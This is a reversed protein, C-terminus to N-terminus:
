ILRDDLCIVFYFFVYYRDIWYNMKVKNKNYMYVKILLFFNKMVFRIRVMNIEVIWNKELCNCFLIVKILFYNVIIYLLNIFVVCLNNLRIIKM